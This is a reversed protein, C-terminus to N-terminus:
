TQPRDTKPNNQDFRGFSLGNRTGIWLTNDDNLCGWLGEYKAGNRLNGFFSNVDKLGVRQEFVSLVAIWTHGKGTTLSDFVDEDPCVLEGQRFVLAAPKNELVNEARFTPCGSLLAKRGKDQKKFILNEYGSAQNTWALDRNHSDKQLGKVADLDLLLHGTPLDQGFALAPLLFLLLRM